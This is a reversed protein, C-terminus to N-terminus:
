YPIGKPTQVRALGTKFRPMIENEVYQKGKTFDGDIGDSVAEVVDGAGPIFKNILPKVYPLAPKVVKDNVWKAGKAIKKGINVIGDKLKKFIGFGM